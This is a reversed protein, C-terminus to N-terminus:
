RQVITEAVFRHALARFRGWDAWEPALQGVHELRHAVTELELSPVWKWGGIMEDPDQPDLISDDAMRTLFYYTAFEREGLTAHHFRYGTIGLMREVQVYREGAGVRLGTEEYIERVLTDNVGETRHIGGTPLRFAGSPYMLKIHLLVGDSPDNRHMVYCIEARRGDSILRQHNGTLFPEDVALTHHRIELTGWRDELQSVEVPEIAEEYKM